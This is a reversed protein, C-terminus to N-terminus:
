VWKAEKRITKNKKFYRQLMCFCEEKSCNTIVNGCDLIETKIKDEDSEKIVIYFKRSISEKHASIDKILKKYDDIMESLYPEKDKIKEVNEIYREIDVCDTQIIIQMDFNCLKLFSKYYELIIQQENKTKLNFNIPEVKLVKLKTGNKM